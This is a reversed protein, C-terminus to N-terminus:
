KLAQDPNKTSLYRLLNKYWVMGVWKEGAMVILAPLGTQQMQRFAEMADKDAQILISPSIPQMAESVTKEPWATTPVAQADDPTIIGVPQDAIIVPYLEFGSRYLYDEMWQTLTLNPPVTRVDTQVFHSVPIGALYGRITTAQFSAIAANRLFFGILVWWVGGVFVGQLISIVGLVILLTGFWNGLTSTIRTAWYIDRKWAWLIARLVRGGDMPFAPVMNFLLLYKNLMALYATVGYLPLAWGHLKEGTALASFLLFLLVSAAPGALAMLLEGKPSAPEDTMEAVGGFIFLTIGHMPIGFYRAVWAHSFEHFVISSFLGIVVLLGMWLYTILTLGPYSTPFVHQSLMWTILLALFFWSPDLRVKFGALNFLPFSRKFM